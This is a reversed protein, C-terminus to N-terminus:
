AGDPAFALSYVAERHGELTKCLKGTERDYIRIVGDFGGAAVRKGDPSVALTYLPGLNPTLTRECKGTSLDWIEITGRVALVIAQRWGAHVDPGARLGRINGALCEEGDASWLRITGDQGASALLEGNPAYALTLVKDQHGRFTAVATANAM